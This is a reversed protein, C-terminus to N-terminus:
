VGLRHLVQQEYFGRFKDHYPCFVWVKIPNASRPNIVTETEIIVGLDPRSKIFKALDDGRSISASIVDSWAIFAAPAPNSKHYLHNAIEFLIFSAGKDSLHHAETVGCSMSSRTFRTANSNVYEGM